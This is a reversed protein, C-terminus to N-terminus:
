VGPPQKLKQLQLSAGAKISWATRERALACHATSAPAQKEKAVRDQAM